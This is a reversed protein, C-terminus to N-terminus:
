TLAKRWLYPIFWDRFDDFDGLAFCLFVVVFPTLAVRLVFEVLGIILAFIQVLPNM